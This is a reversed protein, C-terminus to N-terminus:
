DLLLLATGATKMKRKMHHIVQIQVEGLGVAAEEGEVEGSHAGEVEM